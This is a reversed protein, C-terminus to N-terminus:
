TCKSKHKLTNNYYVSQHATRDLLATLCNYKYFM